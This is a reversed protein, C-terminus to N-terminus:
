VTFLCPLCLFLDMSVNGQVTQSFFLHYHLKISDLWPEFIIVKEALVPGNLPWGVLGKVYWVHPPVGGGRRCFKM